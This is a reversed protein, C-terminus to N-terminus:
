RLADKLYLYMDFLLLALLLLAALRFGWIRVRGPAASEPDHRLCYVSGEVAPEPCRGGSPDIHFCPTM